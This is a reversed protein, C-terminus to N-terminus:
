QNSNAEVQSEFIDYDKKLIVIDVRRNIAQNGPSINPVRPRYEGYGVASLREPSIGAQDQFVHMVNCARLVSLEWNSPFRTTNIPINDTHGEIRIYNPVMVLASALKKIIDRAQPNLEASASSFLLTDKISIVLGREQEIIEIYDGLKTPPSGVPQNPSSVQQATIFDHIQKEVAELQATDILDKTLGQSEQGLEGNIVTPGRQDPPEISSGTLVVSLSQAIANYKAIDVKSLAYMLIFFVMLLTIFDAYSLLWRELGSGSEEEEYQRRRGSM